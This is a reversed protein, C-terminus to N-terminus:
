AQDAAVTRALRGVLSAAPIISGSAPAEQLRRHGDAMAASGSKDPKAVMEVKTAAPFIAPAIIRVARAMQLAEAGPSPGPADRPPLGAAREGAHQRGFGVNEQEVFGGVMEVHDADLTQLRHELGRSRGHHQDAVVPTEQLSKGLGGDPEVAADRPPEVVAKGAELGPAIRDEFGLLKGAMFDVAADYLLM